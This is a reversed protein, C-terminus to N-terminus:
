RSEFQGHGQTAWHSLPPPFPQDAYDPVCARAYVCVNYSCWKSFKTSDPRRVFNWSGMGCFSPSQHSLDRGMPFETPRSESCLLNAAGRQGKIKRRSAFPFLQAQVYILVSEKMQGLPKPAQSSACVHGPHAWATTRKHLTAEIFGATLVAPVHRLLSSTFVNQYLSAM